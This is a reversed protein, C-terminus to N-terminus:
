ILKTNALILIVEHLLLVEVEMFSSLLLRQTCHLRKSTKNLAGGANESNGKKEQITMSMITCLMNSHLYSITIVVSRLM